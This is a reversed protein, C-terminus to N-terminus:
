GLCKGSSEDTRSVNFVERLKRLCKVGRLNAKSADDIGVGFSSSGVGMRDWRM